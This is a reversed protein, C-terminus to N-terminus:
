LGLFQIGLGCLAIAAGALAHSYRELIGLPLFRVSALGFLVVTLMTALTTAGFVAAVLVAGGVSGTAAPYILVPILPECPGLVFVIFLMWPTLRRLDAAPDDDAAHENPLHRHARSRLARHIGWACYVLGVSILLWAALDGRAAEVAELRSVALGFAIGVLGLVISSAVHGLGCLTTVWATRGLSWGRARGLVVFPLYHDPGLLTHIVGVSAATALLIALEEPM